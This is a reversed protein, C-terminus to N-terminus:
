KKSSSTEKEEKREDDAKPVIRTKKNLKRVEHEWGLEHALQMMVSDCDGLLVVDDERMFDGVEDRNILVRRKCQVYNPIHSVPAVQLSTGIVLLLDVTEVDESLLKHFRDPLGEGFFVIDPKVFSKCKPCAPPTKANGNLIHDKCVDGDMAKKCKICSATRFHGHCEVIQPEPITALHELGDINQTYNRLLKQHPKNALVAGFSHTLTPSHQLGPWLEKALSLFPQPKRRYFDVDFVAEPYPLSYKQLNDYLGTGPTRFDPIGAACSVGAGSLIIINKSEQIWQAVKKIDKTNEDDDDDDDDDFVDEQEQENVKDDKKKDDDLGLGKVQNVLDDIEVTKNDNNVNSNSM